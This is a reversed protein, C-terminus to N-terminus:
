SVVRNAGAAGVTGTEGHRRELGCEPCVRETAPLEGLSFACQECVEFGAKFLMECRRPWMLRQMISMQIVYSAALAPVFAAGVWLPHGRLGPWWQAAFFCAMLVMSFTGPILAAAWERRRPWVRAGQRAKWAVALARANLLRRESRPLRLERPFGDMTFRM